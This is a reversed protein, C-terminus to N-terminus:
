MCVDFPSQMSVFCSFTVTPENINHMNQVNFQPTRAIHIIKPITYFTEEHVYLLSPTTQPPPPSAANFMKFYRKHPRPVNQSLGLLPGTFIHANKLVDEDSRCLLNVLQFTKATPTM